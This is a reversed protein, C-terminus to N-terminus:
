PAYIWFMLFSSMICLVQLNVLTPCVYKHSIWPRGLYWGFSRRFEHWHTKQLDLLVFSMFASPLHPPFILLCIFFEVYMETVNSFVCFVGQWSDGCPDGGFSLWKELPPFNLSIYLSNLAMVSSFFLVFYFHPSMHM